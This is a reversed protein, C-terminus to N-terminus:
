KRECKRVMIIVFAINDFRHVQNKLVKVNKFNDGKTFMGM